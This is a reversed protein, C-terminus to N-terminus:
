SRFLPSYCTRHHFHKLLGDLAALPTLLLTIGSALNLLLRSPNTSSRTVTHTDTKYTHVPHYIANVKNCATEKYRVPARQRLSFRGASRNLLASDDTPTEETASPWPPFVTPSSKGHKPKRTHLLNYADLMDSCCCVLKTRPEWIAEKRSYGRWKVLYQRDKGLGRHDLLSDILYEDSM